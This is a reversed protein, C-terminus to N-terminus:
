VEEKSVLELLSYKISSGDAPPSRLTEKRVRMTYIYGEQYTFGEIQEYFFHWQQTGVLEGEQIQLCEMPGHAGVCAAKSDRVKLIIEREIDHKECSFCLLLAVLLYLPRKM